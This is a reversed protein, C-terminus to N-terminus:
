LSLRAHITFWFFWFNIYKRFLFVKATVVSLCTFSISTMLQKETLLFGAIVALMYGYIIKDTYWQYTSM